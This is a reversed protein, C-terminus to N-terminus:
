VLRQKRDAALHWRWNTNTNVCVYVCVCVCRPVSAPGPLNIHLGTWTIEIEREKQKRRKRGGARGSVWVTKIFEWCSMEEDWSRGKRPAARKGGKTVVATASHCIKEEKRWKWVGLLGRQRRREWWESKLSIPDTNGKKRRREECKLAGKHRCILYTIGRHSYLM